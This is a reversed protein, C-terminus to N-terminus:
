AKELINSTGQEELPKQLPMKKIFLSAVAMAGCMACYFIWMTSLASAANQISMTQGSDKEAESDPALKGGHLTKQLLVSGIVISMSSCLSRMFSSASMAAAIDAHRSHSQLAVMPSQFLPGAGMSVIVQFIIIKPWSLTPGFRIFLGTGLTMFCSGIWIPWQYDGKRRVYWGTCMTLVSLPVVLALLCVGSIIAKFGLVMQFYLPLFYDYSIFVFSHLCLVIISAVNTQSSLIRGPILPNTAFRAEYVAFLGLIIFGFVLLCIVMVSGWSKQGSAGVELGYLFCITGGIILLSGLWDLSKLGPLIPITKTRSELAFFLVVLSLGDFPLNIM